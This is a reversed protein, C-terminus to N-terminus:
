SPAQRRISKELEELAELAAEDERALERVDAADFTPQIKMGKNTVRTQPGPKHELDQMDIVPTEIHLEDIPDPRQQQPM